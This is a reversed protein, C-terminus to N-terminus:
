FMGDSVDVFLAMLQLERLSNVERATGAPVMAAKLAKELEILEPQGAQVSPTYISISLIQELKVFLTTLLITSFM